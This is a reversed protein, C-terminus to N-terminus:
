KRMKRLLAAREKDTKANELKRKLEHNRELKKDLKRQKAAKQWKSITEGVKKIIKLIAPLSQLLALLGKWM